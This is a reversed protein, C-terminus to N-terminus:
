TNGTPSRNSSRSPPRGRPRVSAPRNLTREVMAQFRADGYARQQAAHARIAKLQQETEGAHLWERYAVRSSEADVGLALLCPHPAILSDCKLGLNAHVSSWAYDEPAAVMGARVPNREIYRYVSLMYHDTAVLCSKFRGEWLTGTRGHRHNFAQVYCQTSRHLTATAAGPWEASTLLHVHNGMLVYAHVTLTNQRAFLGLLRLYDYRDDDDLFTACRNVGRQTIHLPIGPLELRPPRPM